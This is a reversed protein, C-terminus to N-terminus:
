LLIRFLGEKQRGEGETVRSIPENKKKTRAKNDGGLLLFNELQNLVVGVGCIVLIVVIGVVVVRSSVLYADNHM